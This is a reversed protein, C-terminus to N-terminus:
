FKSAPTLLIPAGTSPTASVPAIAPAEPVTFYSAKKEM